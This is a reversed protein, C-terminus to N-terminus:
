QNRGEQRGGTRRIRGDAQSDGPHGAASGPGRVPKGQRAETPSSAGTPCYLEARM